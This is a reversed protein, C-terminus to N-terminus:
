QRRQNASLHENGYNNVRILFDTLVNMYNIFADYPSGYPNFSNNIKGDHSKELRMYYFHDSSQLKSWDSRLANDTCTAMIPLASYLVNLAEQQLENGIWSTLVQQDSKIKDIALADPKLITLATEAAESVTSFIWRKSSVIKDAFNQLFNLIGNNINKYSAFTEYDTFLNVPTTNQELGNLWNVYKEPTLPWESWERGSFRSSIDESLEHNRLAIKLEPFSSNEQSPYYEGPGSKKKVGDALLTNFGMVSAITALEDSIMFNSNILANPTCGFLCHLMKVQKEVQRKYETVDMVMALSHSYPEAVLEVNGTRYLEKFSELAEPVYKKMQEIATGSISLAVKFGTGFKSILKILVDNVPMYCDRAIRRLIDANLYQNFYSHDTGIDFFRYTKLRFPQHVRFLLCIAQKEISNPTKM